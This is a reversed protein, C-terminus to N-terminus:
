DDYDVVVFIASSSSLDNTDSEADLSNSLDLPELSDLPDLAQPGLTVKSIKADIQRVRRVYVSRTVLFRNLTVIEREGSM